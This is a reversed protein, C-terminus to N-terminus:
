CGGLKARFERVFSVTKLLQWWGLSVRPRGWRARSSGALRGTRTAHLTSPAVLDGCHLVAQAGRAKADAVAWAPPSKTM